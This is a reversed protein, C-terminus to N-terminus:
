TVSGAATGMPLLTGLPSQKTKQPEELVYVNYNLCFDIHLICWVIMNTILKKNKGDGKTEISM